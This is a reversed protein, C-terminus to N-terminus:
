TSSKKTSATKIARSNFDPRTGDQKNEALKESGVVVSVIPPNSALSDLISQIDPLFHESVYDQVFQNPALLRIDKDRFVVQLPRIWTSFQQASLTNELQSFCQDWIPQSM